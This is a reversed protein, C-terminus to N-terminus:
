GINALHQEVPAHVITSDIVAVTYLQLVEEVDLQDVNNRTLGLAFPLCTLKPPQLPIEGMDIEVGIHFRILINMLQTAEILADLLVSGREPAFM